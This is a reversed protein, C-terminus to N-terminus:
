EQSSSYDLWAEISDATAAHVVTLRPNQLTPTAHVSPIGKCGIDGVRVAHSPSSTPAWAKSIWLQSPGNPSEIRPPNLAFNTAAEGFAYDVLPFFVVLPM